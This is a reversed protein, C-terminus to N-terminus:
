SLQNLLFLDSVGLNERLFRRVRDVSAPRSLLSDGNSDRSLLLLSALDTHRVVEPSHTTIIVQIDESLSKAAEIVRGLLQPHLSREPEEIVILPRQEFYLAVAWSLANVTGDSLATAPLFKSGGRSELLELRLSQGLDSVRIDKLFPLFDRAVSLLRSKGQHDQIISSIVVALNSGDYNLIPRGLPTSLEKERRPELSYFSGGFLDPFMSVVFAGTTPNDLLCVSETVPLKRVSSLYAIFASAQPLPSPAQYSRLRIRTGSRHLVIRAVREPLDEKKRSTRRTRYFSLSLRESIVKASPFESGVDIKMWYSSDLFGRSKQASGGRTSHTQFVLPVLPNRSTVSIEVVSTRSRINGLLALGGQARVASLLGTQPIARLFGLISILNSKGSANAGIVVNFRGLRLDLSRFSKFNRARIRQIAM